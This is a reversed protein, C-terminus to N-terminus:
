SKKAARINILKKVDNLIVEDKVDIMLWKGGCSFRTNEYLEKVYESCTPIAFETEVEEKTGIVILVTFYDKMPYVTCLSKGGKKYKLNWGCKASCKSYEIQPATKYESELFNSFDEYVPSSIFTSINEMTPEHNLSYCDKWEM